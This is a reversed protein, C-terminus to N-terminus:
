AVAVFDQCSMFWSTRISQNLYSDKYRRLISGGIFVQNIITSEWFICGIGWPGTEWRDSSLGDLIAWFTGLLADKEDSFPDLGPQLVSWVGGAVAPVIALAQMM